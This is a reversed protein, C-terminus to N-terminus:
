PVATQSDARQRGATALSVAGINPGGVPLSAAHYIAPDPMVVRVDVDDRLSLSRTVSWLDANFTTAWMLVKMREGSQTPGLIRTKLASALANPLDLLSM